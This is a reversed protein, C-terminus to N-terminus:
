LRHSTRSGPKPQRTPHYWSAGRPPSSRPPTSPRAGRGQEVFHRAAAQSLYFASSLNVSIVDEWDEEGFELAPARRIIGANNVLIALRGMESVCKDIIKAALEVNTERLDFNLACFKRGIASVQGRTEDLPLVDLAAIGAGAEVLGVAIGQGLGRATGTVLAIRGDLKFSDLVTM